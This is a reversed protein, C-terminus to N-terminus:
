VDQYEKPIGTLEINEEPADLIFQFDYRDSIRAITNAPLKEWGPFTFQPESVIKFEKIITEKLNQRTRYEEIMLKKAAELAEHKPLYKSLIELINLNVGVGIKDM